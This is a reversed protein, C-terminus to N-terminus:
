ANKESILYRLRVWGWINPLFWLATSGSFDFPHQMGAGVRIFDSGPEQVTRSTNTHLPETSRAVWRTSQTTGDTWAHPEWTAGTTVLAEGVDGQPDWTAMFNKEPFYGAGVLLPWPALQLELSNEYLATTWWWDLLIHTVIDGAHVRTGEIPFDATWFQEFPTDGLVTSPGANISFWEANKM